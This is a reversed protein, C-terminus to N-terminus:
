TKSLLMYRNLQALEEAYIRRMVALTTLKEFWGGIYSSVKSKTAITVKSQTGDALPEVTFLTHTGQLPDTEALVRGPQPESVTMRYARKAGNINMRAVFETGAGVGGQLVQIDVFYPKPLIHPHHNRYDALVAYVRDPPADITTSVAVNIDSM